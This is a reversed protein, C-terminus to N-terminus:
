PDLQRIRQETRLADRAVDELRKEMHTRILGVTWTPKGMVRVPPPLEGRKVARKVTM